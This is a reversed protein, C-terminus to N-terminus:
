PQALLGGGADFYERSLTQGKEIQAATMRAAVIDRNRRATDNGGAAAINYWAYAHLYDQPVGRGTGYMWGLNCQAQAVGERASERYWKVAQLYDQPVGLGLGYMVGLQFKADPDGAVAADTLRTVSLSHDRPQEAGTENSAEM